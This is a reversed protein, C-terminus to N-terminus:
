QDTEPKDKVFKGDVMIGTRGKIEDYAAQLCNEFSVGILEALLILVVTCDGIGDVVAHQDETELGDNIELVEEMLKDFQTMPTAKGDKGIIGKEEGWLRVKSILDNMYIERM